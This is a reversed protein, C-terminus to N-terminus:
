SLLVILPSGAGQRYGNGPRRLEDDDKGSAERSGPSAEERSKAILKDAWSQVFIQSASTQGLSQEFYTNSPYLLESHPCSHLCFHVRSFSITSFNASLTWSLMGQPCLLPLLPPLPLLLQGDGRVRRTISLHKAGEMLSAGEVEVVTLLASVLHKIHYIM